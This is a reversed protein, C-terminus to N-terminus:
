LQFTSLTLIVFLPVTILFYLVLTTRTVNKDISYANWHYYMIATFIIYIAAVGYFGLSTLTDIPVEFSITTSGQAM